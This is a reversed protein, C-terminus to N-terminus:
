AHLLWILGGFYVDYMENVLINVKMSIGSNKIGNNLLIIHYLYVKETLVISCQSSCVFYWTLYLFFQVQEFVPEINATRFSDFICIKTKNLNSLFILLM